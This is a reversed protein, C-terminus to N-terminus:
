AGYSRALEATEKDKWVSMALLCSGYFHGKITAPTFLKEGPMRVDMLVIDTTAANFKKLLEAYTGAESSVAINTQAQLLVSIAHRISESDDAVLIRTLERM